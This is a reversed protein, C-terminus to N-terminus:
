GGAAERGVKQVLLDLQRHKAGTPQVQHVAEVMLVQRIGPPAVLDAVVPYAWPSPPPERDLGSPHSEVRAEAAGFPPGLSLHAVEADAVSAAADVVAQVGEALVEQLAVVGPQTEVAGVAGTHSAGEEVLPNGAASADQNQLAAVEVVLLNQPVVVSGLTGLVLEELVLEELRVRPPALIGM